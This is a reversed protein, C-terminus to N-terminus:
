VNRSAHIIQKTLGGIDNEITDNSDLGDNSNDIESDNENIDKDSSTFDISNISSDCELFYKLKNNGM